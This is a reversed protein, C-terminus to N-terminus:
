YRRVIRPQNYKRSPNYRDFPAYLAKRRSDIGNLLVILEDRDSHSPEVDTDGLKFETETEFIDDISRSTAIQEDTDYETEIQSLDGSVDAIGSGIMDSIIKVENKVRHLPKSMLSTTPDAPVISSIRRTPDYNWSIIARTPKSIKLFNQASKATATKSIELNHQATKTAAIWTIISDNLKDDDVVKTKLQRYDYITRPNPTTIRIDSPLEHSVTPSTFARKAIRRIEDITKKSHATPKLFGRDRLAWVAAAEELSKNPWDRPLRGLRSEQVVRGEKETKM